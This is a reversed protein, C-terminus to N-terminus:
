ETNKPKNTKPTSKNKIKKDEEPGKRKESKKPKNTKPTSKNKIKKDEDPNKRNRKSEVYYNSVLFALLCSFFYGIFKM